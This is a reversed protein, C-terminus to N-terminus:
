RVCLVCAYPLHMRACAQWKYAHWNCAHWTCACAHKGSTHVGIAHMCAMHMCVRAMDMDMDMPRCELAAALVWHVATILTPLSPQLSDCLQQLQRRVAREADACAAIYEETCLRVNSSVVRNSLLRKNRDRAPEFDPLAGAVSVGADGSSDVNGSKSGDVGDCTTDVTDGQGTSGGRSGKGGESGQTTGALAEVTASQAVRQKAKSTSTKGERLYIANNISDHVVVKGSAAVDMAVATCLAAAASRLQDYESM